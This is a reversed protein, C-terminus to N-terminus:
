FDNQDYGVREGLRVARNKIPLITFGLGRFCYMYLILYFLFLKNTCCLSALVHSKRFYLSIEKLTCKDDIIFQLKISLFPNAISRSKWSKLQPMMRTVTGPSYHRKRNASSAERPNEGVNDVSPLENQVHIIDKNSTFVGALNM